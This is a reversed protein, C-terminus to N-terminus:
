LLVDWKISLNKKLSYIWLKWLLGLQYDTEVNLHFRISQFLTPYVILFLFFIYTQVM